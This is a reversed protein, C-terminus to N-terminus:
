RGALEAELDSLVQALEVGTLEPLDARRRRSDSLGRGDRVARARRLQARTWDVLALSQAYALAIREADELEGLSGELEDLPILARGPSRKARRAGADRARRWTARSGSRSARTSGARCAHAASEHVFAHALEHRLVRELTPKERGLDEVPVRVTGDFVGGAWHGMGTAAHFGERRYLVVRIKARGSEVPLPRLARRLRQYARRSCRRSSPRAGCSITARATTPSSSTSRSERWFGEESKPSDAGDARPAPRHRRARARARGRARPARARTARTQAAATTRARALRALAEALNRAFVPEDPVAVHCQEFCSSRAERTARRRAGRDGRPQARGLAVEVGARRSAARHASPAGAARDRAARPEGVVLERPTTARGACPERRLRARVPADTLAPPASPARRWFRLSPRAGRAAGCHDLLAM